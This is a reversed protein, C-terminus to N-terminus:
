KLSRGDFLPLSVANIGFRTCTAHREAASAMCQAYIKGKQFKDKGYMRSYTKCKIEDSNYLEDCDDEINISTKGVGPRWKRTRPKRRGAGVVEDTVRLNLGPTPLNLFPTKERGTTRQDFDGIARTLAAGGALVPLGVAPVIPATEPHSALFGAARVLGRAKPRAGMKAPKLRKGSGGGRGTDVWQGGNSNGVPARPQNSDFKTELNRIAQRLMEAAAESRFKGLASEFDDSTMM